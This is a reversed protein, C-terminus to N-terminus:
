KPLYDERMPSFVEIAISNDIVKAGHPVDGPISWSDGPNVDFTENGITLIIKGSVLYGTQEHPHDHIPLIKGKELKFEALLTKKGYALAKFSIGDLPHQYNDKNQKYFM